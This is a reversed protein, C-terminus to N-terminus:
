KFLINYNKMKFRLPVKAKNKKSRTTQSCYDGGAATMVLVCIFWLYGALGGRFPSIQSVPNGSSLWLVHGTMTQTQGMNM